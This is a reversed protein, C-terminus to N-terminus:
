LRKQQDTDLSGEKNQMLLIGMWKKYKGFYHSFAAYSTYPKGQQPWQIRYNAIARSAHTTGAFAPNLIFSCCLIALIRMSTCSDYLVAFTSAAVFLIKFFMAVM